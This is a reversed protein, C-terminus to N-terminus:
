FERLILDTQGANLGLEIRLVQPHTRYKTRIFDRLQTGSHFGHILRIRYIGKKARRLQANIAIEAQYRTYGHLDLEIIGAAM